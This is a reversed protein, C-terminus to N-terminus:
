RQDNSDMISNICQKSNNIAKADPDNKWALMAAATSKHITPSVSTVNDTKDFNRYNLINSVVKKNPFPLRSQVTSNIGNGFPIKEGVRDAFALLWAIFLGCM